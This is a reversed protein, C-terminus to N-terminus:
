FIQTMYHSFSLFFFGVQIAFPEKTFLKPLRYTVAKLNPKFARGQCNIVRKLTQYVTGRQM